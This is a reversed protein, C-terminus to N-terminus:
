PKAEQAKNVALDWTSGRGDTMEVYEALLRRMNAPLNICFGLADLNFFQDACAECMWWDALEREDGHIRYTVSDDQVHQVREFKACLDGVKITAKCSCCKRSRKTNLTTYDEPRIYSWDGDDYCSCSLSM